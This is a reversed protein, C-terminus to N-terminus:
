PNAARHRAKEVLASLVKPDAPKVLYYDFGSMEALVRDAGKTYEGTIGIILPRGGPMAVRLQRAVDWGTMGPLGIDLVVADADFARVCELVDAGSYCGKTEHGELRLLAMTTLVIDRNDDVVVVRLPRPPTRAPDGEGTRATPSV